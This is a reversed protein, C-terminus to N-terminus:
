RGTPRTAKSGRGGKEREKERESIEKMRELAGPQKSSLAEEQRLLVASVKDVLYQYNEKSEKYRGMLEIASIEDETYAQTTKQENEPVKYGNERLTIACGKPIANRKIALGVAQPSVGLIEALEKQTRIMNLKMVNDFFQRADM